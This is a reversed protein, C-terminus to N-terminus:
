KNNSQISIEGTSGNIKILDGDNLIKTANKCGVVCPVKLERSIIAAHCTIGGEDTIIAKAKKIIKIFKPTTMPTVLIEDKKLKQFDKESFVKCVIGEVNQAFVVDGKLNVTDDQKISIYNSLFWSEYEKIIVVDGFYIYGKKRKKLISLSPLNRSVYEKLTIFKIFEKYDGPLQEEIIKLLYDCSKHIIYDYHYRFDYLINKIRDIIADYHGALQGLSSFPYIYVLKSVYSEINIDLENDILYNLEKIYCKITEYKKLISDYNLELSSYILRPDEELDFENYYIDTNQNDSNYIFLPKFYYLNQTFMQIGEYEGKFYIEEEILSSPRSISLSFPRVIPTIATIPRAQLIYIENHFIAFEIDVPIKYLSEISLLLEELRIIMKDSIFYEGIKLDISLTQRRVIYKSPTKKGSVLKEGLGKVLEIVSYNGISSTPVVSFAVGAYDAPIMEQVIVNMGYDTLEDSYLVVNESYLSCWCLKIAHFLDKFEINLYTSYQGAFSKENGDENSASSRVAVLKSSLEHFNVQIKNKLSDSIKGEMIAEQILKYKKQLFLDSIKESLHNFNLFNKFDLADIIFFNPVNFHNKQLRILSNGKGGFDQM